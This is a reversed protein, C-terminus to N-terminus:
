QSVADVVADSWILSDATQNIVLNLLLDVLVFLFAIGGTTDLATRVVFWQYFLIAGTVLTLILGGLLDPLLLSLLVAALFVTVQVVAAWNSAVILPVFYRGLGFLQTLLLAALPFAAWGIVYATSEVLLLWSLDYSREEMALREGIMIAYGPVVLVAAFFSRWFGEVTLNFYTMGARDMRALRVAGYISQLIEERDPM